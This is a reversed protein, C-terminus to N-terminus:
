RTVGSGEPLQGIIELGVAHLKALAKSTQSKVTGESCNLEIAAAPVTLDHYFRLVIVARQRPPLAALARRLVIRRVSEESEDAGPLAPLRDTPIEVIRRRRRWGSIHEHLIIRRVYSDLRDYDAVKRWRAAVRGLATQLLDEAAYHDGCLLYAFRSLQGGRATVFERFGEFRDVV